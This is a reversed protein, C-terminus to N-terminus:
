DDDFRKLHKGGPAVYPSRCAFYVTMEVSRDTLPALPATNECALPSGALMWRPLIGGRDNGMVRSTSATDARGSRERRQKRRVEVAAPASARPTEAPRARVALSVMLMPQM